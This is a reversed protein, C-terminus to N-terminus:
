GPRAAGVARSPARCTTGFAMAGSRDCDRPCGGRHGAVDEYLFRSRDPDVFRPGDGRPHQVCAKPDGVDALQLVPVRDLVACRVRNGRSGHRACHRWADLGRRAGGPTVASRNWLPATWLAVAFDARHLRRRACDRRRFLCGLSEYVLRSGSRYGGPARCRSAAAGMRVSGLKRRHVGDDDVGHPGRSEVDRLRLQDCPACRRSRRGPAGGSGRARPFADPDCLPRIGGARYAGAVHRRWVRPLRRVGARHVGARHVDSEVSGYALYGM